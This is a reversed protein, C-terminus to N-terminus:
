KLPIKQKITFMAKQVNSMAKKNSKTNNELHILTEKNENNAHYSPASVVNCCWNGMVSNNNM